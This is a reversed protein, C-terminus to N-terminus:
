IKHEYNYVGKSSITYSLDNRFYVLTNGNPALNDGFNLSYFKQKFAYVHFCSYIPTLSHYLRSLVLNFIIIQCSVLPM